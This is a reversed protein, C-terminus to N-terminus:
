VRVYESLEDASLQELYHFIDSGGRQEKKIIQSIKYVITKNTQLPLSIPNGNIDVLQNISLKGSVEQIDGEPFVIYFEESYM